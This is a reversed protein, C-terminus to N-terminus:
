SPVNLRRAVALALSVAARDDPTAPIFDAPVNDAYDQGNYTVGYEGDGHFRVFSAARTATIIPNTPTSM